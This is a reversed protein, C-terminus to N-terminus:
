LNDLCGSSFCLASPGPSPPTPYRGPTQFDCHGRAASRASCFRCCIAPPGLPPCKWPWLSTAAFNVVAPADREGIAFLAIRGQTHQVSATLVGLHLFVLFRVSLLCVIKPYTSCFSFSKLPKVAFRCWAFSVPVGSHGVSPSPPLSWVRASCGFGDWRVSHFVLYECQYFAMDRWLSYQHLSKKLQHLWSVRM